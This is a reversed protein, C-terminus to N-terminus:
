GAIKSPEGFKGGFLYEALPRRTRPTLDREGFDDANDPEPAEYGLALATVIDYDDPVGFLERAEDPRIGGMQHVKIGRASAEFTLTASAAGLDHLAVRNPRGNRTFTKKFLGLALVPAAKAWERNGPALCSLVKGYEEPDEKTAVIYRWPQENYSSAAWRAAEFISRLDDLPVTRHAYVYPSWRGTIWEHVPHDPAGRKVDNPTKRDTMM